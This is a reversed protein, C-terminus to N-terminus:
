IDSKSNLKHSLSSENRHVRKKKPVTTYSHIPMHFYVCIGINLRLLTPEVGAQGVKKIKFHIKNNRKTASHKKCEFHGRFCESIFKQKKGNTRTDRLIFKKQQGLFKSIFKDM